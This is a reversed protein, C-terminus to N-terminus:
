HFIANWLTTFGIWFTIGSLSGIIFPALANRPEEIYGVKDHILNAIERAKHPNAIVSSYHEDNGNVFSFQINGDIESVYLVSTGEKDTFRVSVASVVPM